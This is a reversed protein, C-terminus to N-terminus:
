IGQQWRGWQICNLTMLLVLTADVFYLFGLVTMEKEVTLTIVSGDENHLQVVQSLVELGSPWPTNENPELM